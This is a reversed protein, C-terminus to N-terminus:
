SCCPHTGLRPHTYLLSGPPSSLTMLQRSCTIPSCSKASVRYRSGVAPIRRKRFAPEQQTVVIHFTLEAEYLSTLVKVRVRIFSIYIIYLYYIISILIFGTEILVELRVQSRSRLEYRPGSTEPQLQQLRINRRAPNKPPPVPNETPSPNSEKNSSPFPQDRTATQAAIEQRLRWVAVVAEGFRIVIYLVTLIILVAVSKVFTLHELFVLIASSSAGNSSGDPPPNSTPPAPITRFKSNM